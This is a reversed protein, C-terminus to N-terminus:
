THPLPGDALEAVFLETALDPFRTSIARLHAMDAVLRSALQRDTMFEPYRKLIHYLEIIDHATLEYTLLEFTFSGLTIERFTQLDVVRREEDVGLNDLSTRVRPRETTMAVSQQDHLALATRCEQLSSSSIDSVFIKVEDCRAVGLLRDLVYDGFAFWM